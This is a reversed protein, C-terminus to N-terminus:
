LSSQETTDPSEEQLHLRVGASWFRCSLFSCFSVFFGCAYKIDVFKPLISYLSFILVKFTNM